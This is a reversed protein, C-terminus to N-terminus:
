KETPESLCSQSFETVQKEEQSKASHFVEPIFGIILM